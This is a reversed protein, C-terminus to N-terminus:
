RPKCRACRVGVFRDVARRRWQHCGAPSEHSLAGGAAHRRSRAAAVNRAAGRGADARNGGAAAAGQGRRRHLRARGHRHRAAEAEIRLDAVGRALHRRLGFADGAVEPPQALLNDQLLLLDSESIVASSIPAGGDAKAGLGPARAPRDRDVDRHAHISISGALSSMSLHRSHPPRGRVGVGARHAHPAPPDLRPSDHVPSRSDSRGGQLVRYLAPLWGRAQSLEDRVPSRGRARGPARVGRAARIRAARQMFNAWIPLAYRSGYAEAGIPQPQDYGVWVGVVVSSSFGVFWADKFENTTGTKGGVPFAFASSGVPAGTGRDIADRLMTVMQYAVEPEIVRDGEIKQEFATAGDADRVRALDRPRVAMGGNPFVAFAATIALPTVLGSGLALSPVDPLDDLGARSAVRLVRGSGVQQQLLTAARNNSEMLAARLTLEDPADDHVDRPTWEDPGQPAIQNLGTLTSVPSMGRELAAAFVFPKFASGPQRLSRSARNFESRQYDRGGVLALINGTAPDIAM